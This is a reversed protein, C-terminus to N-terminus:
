SAYDPSPELSHVYELYVREKRGPSLRSSKTIGMAADTYTQTHMVSKIEGVESIEEIIFESVYSM